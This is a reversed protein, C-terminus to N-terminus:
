QAAAWGSDDFGAIDWGAPYAAGDATESGYMARMTIEHPKAYLIMRMFQRVPEM